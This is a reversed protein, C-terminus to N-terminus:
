KIVVVPIELALQFWLCGKLYLLMHADFFFFCWWIWVKLLAYDRLLFSKYYKLNRRRLLRTGAFYINPLNMLCVQEIALQPWHSLKFNFHYIWTVNCCGLENPPRSMTFIVKQLELWTDSVSFVSEACCLCKQRCALRLIESVASRSPECFVWRLNISFPRLFLYGSLTLCIHYSLFPVTGWIVVWCLWSM